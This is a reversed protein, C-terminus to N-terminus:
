KGRIPGDLSLAPRTSASDEEAAPLEVMAMLKERLEDRARDYEALEAASTHKRWAPDYRRLPLAPTSLLAQAHEAAQRLM